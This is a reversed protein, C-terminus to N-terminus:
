PAVRYDKAFIPKDRPKLQRTRPKREEGREESDPREEDLEYGLLRATIPKQPPFGGVCYRCRCADGSEPMGRMLWIAHEAFELPTRFKNVTRSGYLYPDTRPENGDDVVGKKQRWLGYFRPFAALRWKPGNVVQPRGLVHKALMEGLSELWHAHTPDELQVPYYYNVEGKRERRVRMKEDPVRERAGDSLKLTILSGEVRYYPTDLIYSNPFPAPASMSSSARVRRPAPARRSDSVAISQNVSLVKQRWAARKAADVESVANLDRSAVAAADRDPPPADM